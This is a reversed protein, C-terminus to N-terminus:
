SRERRQLVNALRPSVEEVDTTGCLPCTDKPPEGSYCVREHRIFVVRECRHCYAPTYFIQVSVGVAEVVM